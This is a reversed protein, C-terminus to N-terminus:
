LHSGNSKKRKRKRKANNTRRPKYGNVLEYYTAYEGPKWTEGCVKFPVVEGFITMGIEM